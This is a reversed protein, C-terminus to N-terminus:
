TSSSRQQRGTLHVGRSCVSNSQVQKESIKNSKVLKTFPNFRITTLNLDSHQPAHPTINPFPTAGCDDQM